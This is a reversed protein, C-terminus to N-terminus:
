VRLLEHIHYNRCDPNRMCNQDWKVVSFVPSVHNPGFYETLRVFNIGLRRWGHCGMTYTAHCIHGSIRSMVMTHTTHVHREQAYIHLQTCAYTDIRIQTHIRKYTHMMRIQTHVRKYTHMSMYTHLYACINIYSYM